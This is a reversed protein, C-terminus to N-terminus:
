HCGCGSGCSGKVYALSKKQGDGGASSSGNKDGGASDSGSSGSDSGASKTDSAPSKKKGSSGSSGSAYDTKYWGGGKLHFASQSILREAKRPCAKDDCDPRCKLPKDSAKQIAEFVGCKPCEYEYIPM